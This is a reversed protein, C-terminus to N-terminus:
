DAPGTCWPRCREGAEAGCEECTREIPDGTDHMEPHQQNHGLTEDDAHTVVVGVPATAGM